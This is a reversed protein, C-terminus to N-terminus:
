VWVVYPSIRAGSDYQRDYELAASIVLGWFLARMLALLLAPTTCPSVPQGSRGFWTFVVTRRGHDTRITRPLLDLITMFVRWARRAFEGDLLVFEVSSSQCVKAWHHTSQLGNNPRPLTM